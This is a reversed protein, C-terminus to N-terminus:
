SHLTVTQPKTIGHPKTGVLVLGIGSEINVSDMNSRTNAQHQYACKPACKLTIIILTGCNENLLICKLINDAFHCGNYELRSTTLQHQTHVSQKLAQDQRNGTNTRAALPREVSRSCGCSYLLSCRANSDPKGLSTSKATLTQVSNDLSPRRFSRSLAQGPSSSKNM